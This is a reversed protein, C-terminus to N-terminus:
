QHATSTTSAQPLPNHGEISSADAMPATLSEGLAGIKADPERFCPACTFLLLPTMMAFLGLTGFLRQGDCVVSADEDPNPCFKNLLLGGILGAPLDALFVVAHSLGSFTGENGDPAVAMAYAAAAAM